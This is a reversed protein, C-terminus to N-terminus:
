QQWLNDPLPLHLPSNFLPQSGSLFSNQQPNGEISSISSNGINEPEPMANNEKPQKEEKKKLLLKKENEMLLIFNQVDQQYIKLSTNMIEDFGKKLFKKKEKKTLHNYFDWQNTLYKLNFSNLYNKRM